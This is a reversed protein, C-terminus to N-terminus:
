GKQRAKWLSWLEQAKAIDARQTSKDGGCLLIVVEDGYRGFYIRYGAGIDIRLESVGGGVSKHDGFNGSPLRNLRREIAIEAKRDRLGDLWDDVLDKGEASIYHVIELM